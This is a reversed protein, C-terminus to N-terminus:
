TPRSRAARPSSRTPASARSSTAWTRRSASRAADRGAAQGGGEARAPQRAAGGAHLLRHPLARAPGGECSVTSGFLFEFIPGGRMSSPEKPNGAFGMAVTGGDLEKLRDRIQEAAAIGECPTIAHEIGPLKKIFRGGSAIILGDNEIDGDSTQLVRGGREPRHGRRRPAHRGHPPLVGCTSRLDDGSRLGSPVWILGPYYVFEPKPVSWPSPSTAARRACVRSRRDTSRLRLRRRSASIREV